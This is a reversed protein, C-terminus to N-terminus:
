DLQYLEHAEQAQQELLKDRENKALSLFLRPDSLDKESQPEIDQTLDDLILSVLRLRDSKSLQEIHSQYIQRITRNINVM